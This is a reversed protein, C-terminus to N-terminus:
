RRIFPPEFRALSKILGALRLIAFEAALLVVTLTLGCIWGKTCIIFAFSASSICILLWAIPECLRDRSHDLMYLVVAAILCVIAMWVFLINEM